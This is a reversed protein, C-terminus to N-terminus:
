AVALKFGTAFTAINKDDEPLYIIFGVRIHPEDGALVQIIEGQAPHFENKYFFGEIKTGVPTDVLKTM